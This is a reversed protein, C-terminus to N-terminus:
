APPKFAPLLSEEPVEELLLTICRKTKNEEETASRCQLILSVSEKFNLREPLCPPHTHTHTHTHGPLRPHHLRSKVSSFFALSTSEM